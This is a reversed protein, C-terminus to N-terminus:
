TRRRGGSGNSETNELGENEDRNKSEKQSTSERGELDKVDETWQQGVVEDCVDAAVRGRTTHMAYEDQEDGSM